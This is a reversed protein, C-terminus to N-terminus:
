LAHINIILVPGLIFIWIVQSVWTLVPGLFFNADQIGIGVYFPNIRYDRNVVPDKFNHQFHSYRSVWIEPTKMVGTYYHLELLTGWEASSISGHSELNSLPRVSLSIVGDTAASIGYWLSLRKELLHAVTAPMCPLLRALPHIICRQKLIYCEETYILMCCNSRPM